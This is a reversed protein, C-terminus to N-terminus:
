TTWPEPVDGLHISQSPSPFRRVLVLCSDTWLVALSIVESPVRLEHGAM